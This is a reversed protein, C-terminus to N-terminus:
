AGANQNTAAELIDKVLQEPVRYLEDQTHRGAQLGYQKCHASYGQKATQLHHKHRRGAADTVERVFGCDGRCRKPQFKVNTALRTNKRYPFGYMCYSVVVTPLDRVM